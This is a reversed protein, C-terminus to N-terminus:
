NTADEKLEFRVNVNFRYTIKGIDFIPMASSSEVAADEEVSYNARSKYLRPQVEGGNMWSNISLAKGTRQGIAGALAEAEAKAQQMAEIGMEKKLEREKTFKVKALEINSIQREELSAIVQQMTVADHLKLMYTAETKPIIKKSFTKYGVESGMYNLTLSEPIDIRNAKLAGLMAEQMEELSKKGKYDSESITIKIYLEDPTVEREVTTNMDIYPQAINQAVSEQLAAFLMAVAMATTIFLNRRM